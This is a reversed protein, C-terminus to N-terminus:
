PSLQVMGFPVAAGPFTNGENQTGIFPNVLDTLHGDSPEAARAPTAALASAAMVGALCLRTRRTGRM